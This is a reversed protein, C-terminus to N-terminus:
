RRSAQRNCPNRAIGTANAAGWPRRSPLTAANHIGGAPRRGHPFPVHFPVIEDDDAAARGPAAGGDLRGLEAPATSTM